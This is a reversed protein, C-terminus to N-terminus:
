HLAFFSARQTKMLSSSSPSITCLLSSELPYPTLPMDTLSSASSRYSLSSSSSMSHGFRCAPRFKCVLMASFPPM